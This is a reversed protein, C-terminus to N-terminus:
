HELVTTSKSSCLTWGQAFNGKLILHIAAIVRRMTSISIIESARLSVKTEPNWGGKNWETKETEFAAITIAHTM